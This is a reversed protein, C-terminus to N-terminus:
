RKAKEALTTLLNAHTVPIEVQLGSGCGAEHICDRTEQAKGTKRTITGLM